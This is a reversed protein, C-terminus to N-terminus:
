ASRGPREAAVVDPTAAPTAAHETGDTADLGTAPASERIILETALTLGHVPSRGSPEGVTALIERVALQGLERLPQRVTTLSPSFYEGEDMGDFGVVAIDDPVAIGRRALVNLAGLAMQDNAVFLGDVSPDEELIREIASVGSASTWDGEVVPGAELRADGSRTM